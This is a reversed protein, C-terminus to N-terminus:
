AKKGAVKRPSLVVIMRRGELKPLAEAAGLEELEKIFKLLLLEGREKFVITRGRFHVYAKVKSGEELFKKAHRVKFEFDHDDTNPGFRIEKVVTKAAKAKIEKEKKKKDYLFKRFDIIRVVPPKANPSIEVLDMELMQAWERVRRTPYIGPEVPQGAAQSIEELNDGVLRVEPIRIQDNIRFQPDKDANNRRPDNGFTKAM